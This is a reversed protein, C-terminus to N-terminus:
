ELAAVPELCPKAAAQRERPLGDVFPGGLANGDRVARADLSLALAFVAAPVEPRRVPVQDPGFQDAGVARGLRGGRLDFPLGCM